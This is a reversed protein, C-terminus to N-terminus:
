ERRLVEHPLRRRRLRAGQHPDEVADRATIIIVPLATDRQRLRCLVELGDRNPLGLDLLVAQHGTTSAPVNEAALGDRVWDVAYAADKLAVVVADGVMAHNELLPLADDRDKRLIGAASNCWDRSFCL